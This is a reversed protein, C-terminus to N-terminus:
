RCRNLLYDPLDALLGRHREIPLDELAARAERGLDQAARGAAELGLASVLTAKGHAADKGATKGLEATTRTADLLDDTAQFLRGVAGAYATWAAPDAGAARAGLQLSVALLAATKAAHIAAVGAVDLARGEAELDLQQGGVMGAPGAAAALLGAQDRATAADPQAALVEFALGLLADGALVATAEGFAVHVTPLGRRLVDDDMCPLDDHVLSYAHVMECAVAGPLALEAAGGHAECALLALAPRVRKGGSLLAHSVAQRLKAPGLALSTSRCARELAPEVQRGCAELWAAFSGRTPTLTEPM